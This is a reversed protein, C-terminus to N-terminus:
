GRRGCQRRFEHVLLEQFQDAEIGVLHPRMQDCFVITKRVIQDLPIRDVVADVYILLDDAVGVFVIASYDGQRDAARAPTSASWGCTSRRPGNRRRRGSGIASFSRRGNRGQLRPRTRSTYPPMRGLTRAASSRWTPRRSSRRGFCRAPCAFTLRIAWGEGRVAPLNLIEWQDAARDAMKRLLRGALDDRHWRTHTLVIWAATSLRRTSTTPTGTGSGSGCSRATPTRANASPITSSRATPRCGPSRAASARRASAAATAPSRSSTSAHPPSQRRAAATGGAADLASDAFIEAYEPSSMIRQVDRNMSVALDPTHSCAILRLEPDLGLVFAPFRRAVLESKGHQPPMFVMLRRCEGSGCPRTARGAGPPALQRPLRAHYLDTFPLLCQRAQEANGRDSGEPEDIQLPLADHYQRTM